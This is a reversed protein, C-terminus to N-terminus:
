CRVDLLRGPRWEGPRRSGPELERTEADIDPRGLGAAPGGRGAPLDGRGNAGAPDRGTSRGDAHGDGHPSPGFPQGRADHAVGLGVTTALTVRADPGLQAALEPLGLALAARGADTAAALHVEVLGDAFLLHARVEGLSAPSLALTVSRSGDSGALLPVIARVLQHGVAEEAAPESLVGLPDAREGATPSLDSLLPPGLADGGIESLSEASSAGTRTARTPTAATNSGSSLRGARGVATSSEVESGGADSGGVESGGVASGAAAWPRDVAAVQGTAVVGAPTGGVSPVSHGGVPREVPTPATADAPLAGPRLSSVAGARSAPPEATSPTGTGAPTGSPQPRTAPAPRGVVTEAGGVPGGVQGGRGSLDEGGVATASISAPSGGSRTSVEGRVPLSGADAPREGLGSSSGVAGSSGRAPDPEGGAPPVSARRATPSSDRSPLPSPASRGARVGTARAAGPSVADESGTRGPSVEPPSTGTASPSGTATAPLRPPAGTSGASAPGGDSAPPGSAAWESSAPSLGPSLATEAPAVSGSGSPDDISPDALSFGAPNEELTPASRGTPAGGVAGTLDANDAEASRGAWASVAAWAEAMEAAFRDEGRASHVRSRPERSGGTALGLDEVGIPATM